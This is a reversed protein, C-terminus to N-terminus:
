KGSLTILHVPLSHALGRMNFPNRIHSAPPDEPTSSDSHGELHGSRGSHTVNGPITIGHGNHSSPVSGLSRARNRHNIGSSSTSPGGLYDGFDAGAMAVSGRAGGSPYSTRMRPPSSQKAGM